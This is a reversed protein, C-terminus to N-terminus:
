AGDTLTPRNLRNFLTNERSYSDDKFVILAFEFPMYDNRLVVNRSLRYAYSLIREPSSHYTHPLTYEVKDSLYDFAMGIDCLQFAKEMCTRIFLENDGYQFRHNFMGSSLVYDFRRDFSASLFDGAMFRIHPEPYKERGTAVLEEVLDIGLYTYNTCKKRLVRNLDGFGCGVDLISANNLDFLSTLCDFRVEQKGKDWGLTRPSYGFQRFRDQYRRITQEHDQRM